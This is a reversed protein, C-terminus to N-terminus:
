GLNRKSCTINVIEVIQIARDGLYTVDEDSRHPDPGVSCVAMLSCTM